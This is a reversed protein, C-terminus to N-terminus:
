YDTSVGKLLETAAALDFAEGPAKCFYGFFVARLGNTYRGLQPSGPKSFVFCKGDRQRDKSDFFVVVSGDALDQPEAWNTAQDRVYLGSRKKILEVDHAVALYCGANNRAVRTAVRFRPGTGPKSAVSFWSLRCNVTGGMDPPGNFDYCDGQLGNPLAIGPSSCETKVWDTNQARAAPALMMAAAFVFFAYRSM